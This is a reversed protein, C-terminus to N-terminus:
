KRVSRRRAPAPGLRRIVNNSTDAVYLSGDPALRVGVPGNFLAAGAPGDSFGAVGPIGAVTVLQGDATLMRITHNGTDAIFLEGRANVDIGSPTNLRAERAPGDNSGAIGAQGAITTVTGDPAIRRITHNGTDAVYVSGEPGAAVGRPERFRASAAPGDEAGAIGASGAFTSVIRAQPCAEFSLVFGIRRITHNGSDAVYISRERVLDFNPYQWSLAVGTPNNFSSTRDNGDVAGPAGTGILPSVDDRDGLMGTPSVLALQQSGTAAVFMGRDWPGAGCGAGPPEVVIGGGFPGGFDFHIITGLDYYGRAVQMTKVTGGSVYRIADNVRDVVYLDGASVGAGAGRVVDLWTPRNFTATAAPGDEFGAVGPQGAVTTVFALEPDAAFSSFAVLLLALSALSRLTM